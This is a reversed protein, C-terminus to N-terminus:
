NSTFCCGKELAMSLADYYAQKSSPPPVNEILVEEMKKINRAEISYDRKNNKKKRAKGRYAQEADQCEAKQCYVKARSEYYNNAVITALDKCNECERDITKPYKSRKRKGM